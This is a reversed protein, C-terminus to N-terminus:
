LVELTDPIPKGNNNRFLTYTGTPSTGDMKVYIFMAAGYESLTLRWAGGVYQITHGPDSVDRWMDESVSHAFEYSRSFSPLSIMPVVMYVSPETDVWFNNAVSEAITGGGSGIPTPCDPSPDMLPDWDFNVTGNISNLETMRASIEALTTQSVAERVTSPAVEFQARATYGTSGTALYNGIGDIGAESLHNSTGVEDKATKWIYYLAGGIEDAYYLGDNFQITMHLMGYFQGPTVCTSSDDIIRESVTVTIANTGLNIVDNGGFGIGDKLTGDQSPTLTYVINPQGTETITIQDISKGGVTFDFEQQTYSISYETAGECFTFWVISNISSNDDVNFSAMDPGNTVLDNGWIWHVDGSSGCGACSPPFSIVVSSSSSSNSSESSSSSDSSTSMNLASDSSSSNDLANFCEECSDYTDQITLDEVANFPLFEVFEYCVGDVMIYNSDPYDIIIDPM